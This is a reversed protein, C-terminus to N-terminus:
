KVANMQWDCFVTKNEVSQWKHVYPFIQQYLHTYVCNDDIIVVVLVVM